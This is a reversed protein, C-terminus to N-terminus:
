GWPCERVEMVLVVLGPKDAAKSELFSVAISPLRHFLDLAVEAVETEEGPRWSVQLPYLLPPPDGPCRCPIFCHHRRHHAFTWQVWMMCAQMAWQMSSTCPRIVYLRQDFHVLLVM